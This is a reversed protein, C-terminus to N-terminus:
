QVYKEEKPRDPKINAADITRRIRRVITNYDNQSFGWLDRVGGPDLGEQWGALVMQAEQDDTFLHDIELLTQRHSLQQEATPQGIPHSHLPNILKGESDRRLLDTELVPV